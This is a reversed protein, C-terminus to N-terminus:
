RSILQLPCAIPPQNLFAPDDVRVQVTDKAVLGGDDTVTLEFLYVGSLFGKLSTQVANPSAIVVTTPGVVMTWQYQVITGDPDSSASGDLRASDKPLAITQDAGAHAAPPQNMESGEYSLERKCFAFCQLLFLAISLIAAGTKVHKM